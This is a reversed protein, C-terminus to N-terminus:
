FICTSKEIKALIINLVIGSMIFWYGKRKYELGTAEITGKEAKKAIDVAKKYEHFNQEWGDFDSWKSPIMEQLWGFGYLYDWRLLQGTVMYQSTFNEETLRKDSGEPLAISIRNFNIKNILGSSQVILLDSPEKLVGRVVWKTGNWLVERGEANPNGFLKEAINESIICGTKDEVSLNKGFSLLCYSSGCVTIINSNYRRTNNCDSIYENKLEAWVAFSFTKNEEQSVSSALEAGTKDKVVFTLNNFYGTSKSLYFMGAALFVITVLLCLLMTAWELIVTRKEM